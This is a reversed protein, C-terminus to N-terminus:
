EPGFFPRRSGAKDDEQRILSQVYCGAEQDKIQPRKGTLLVPSVHIGHRQLREEVIVQGLAPVQSRARENGSVPFGIVIITPRHRNAAAEPAYELDTVLRDIGVDSGVVVDYRRVVSASVPLQASLPCEQERGM